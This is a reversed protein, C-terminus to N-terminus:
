LSAHSQENVRTCSVIWHKLATQNMTFVAGFPSWRQVIIQPQLWRALGKNDLATQQKGCLIFAREFIFFNLGGYFYQPFNHMGLKDM